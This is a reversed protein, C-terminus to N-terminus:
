PSDKFPAPRKVPMPLGAVVLTVLPVEAALDQHLRGAEDRFLRALANDPVIGYGVENSVLLLPAGHAAVARLLAEREVAWEAPTDRCLWNSLWLTLCDVVVYQGQRAKLAAALHLPAEVSHWHAPREARHRTIRTLMEADHAEATALWCVPGQHALAQNLAYRSKGSRAGGLILETTM